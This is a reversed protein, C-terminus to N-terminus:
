NPQTVEHSIQRLANVFTQPAQAGSIGYRDNIIYFPVGSVGRTYSENEQETVEKKGEDSNLFTITSTPDLGCGIALSLLNEKKSLDVGEQFYAQMLAEKLQPQRNFPRAFWLLRHADRTNPTIKQKDFHFTLGEEAAVTAVHRTLQHYRDESGFKQVLYKKQDLGEPPIGPNLEFPLYVIEFDMEGSLSDIAKELRRKGIYCWPCVVDSVIEIRIM